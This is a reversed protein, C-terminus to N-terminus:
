SAFSLAWMSRAELFGMTKKMEKEELLVLSEVSSVATDQAIELLKWGDLYQRMTDINWVIPARGLAEKEATAMDTILTQCVNEAHTFM